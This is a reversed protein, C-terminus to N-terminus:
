QPPPIGVEIKCYDAVYPQTCTYTYTTTNQADRVSVIATSPHECKGGHKSADYSDGCHDSKDRIHLDPMPKGEWESGQEDYPRIYVHQLDPNSAPKCAANDCLLIGEKLNPKGDSTMDTIFITWSQTNGIVPSVVSSFGTSSLVYSYGNPIAACYEAPDVATSDCRFGSLWGQSSDGDISGGRVIIPPGPPPPPAPALMTKFSRITIIVLLVSIIIGFFILLLKLSQLGRAITEISDGQGSTTM